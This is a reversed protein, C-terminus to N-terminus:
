SSLRQGYSDLFDRFTGIMESEQDAASGVMDLFRELADGMAATIEALSEAIVEDDM